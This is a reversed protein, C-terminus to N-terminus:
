RTRDDTALVSYSGFVAAVDFCLFGRRCRSRRTQGPPDAVIEWYFKLVRVQRGRFVLSATRHTGQTKLSWRARLIAAFTGAVAAPNGREWMLVVVPNQWSRQM